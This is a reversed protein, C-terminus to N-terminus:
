FITYPGGMSVSFDSSVPGGGRGPSIVNEPLAGNNGDEEKNRPPIKQM